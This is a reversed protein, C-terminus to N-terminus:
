YLMLYVSCELHSPEGVYGRELAMGAQVAVDVDEMLSDGPSSGALLQVGSREEVIKVLKIYCDRVMLKEKVLPFLTPLGKPLAM